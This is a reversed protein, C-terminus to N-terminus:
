FLKLDEVKKIYDDVEKELKKSKHLLEFRTDLSVDNKRSDFYATQAKRMEKVTNAFAQLETNDEM